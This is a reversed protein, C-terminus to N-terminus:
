QSVGLDKELRSLRSSLDEVIKKLSEIESQLLPIQPDNAPRSTSPSPSPAPRSSGSSDSDSDNSALIGTAVTKRVQELEWEPYLNHSVIQGRGPPSLEVVLGRRKLEQFLDNMQQIDQIPEM